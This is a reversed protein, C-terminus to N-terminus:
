TDYEDDDYSPDISAELMKILQRTGENTMHLTSGYGSSGIALTIRGDESKGVQYVPPLPPVRVQPAPPVLKPTPLNYVNDKQEEDMVPTRPKLQDWITSMNFYDAIPRVTLPVILCLVWTMSLLTPDMLKLYANALGAVIYIAGAWFLYYGGTRGFLKM